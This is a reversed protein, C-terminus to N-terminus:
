DSRWRQPQREQFRAPDGLPILSRDASVEPLLARATHAERCLVHMPEFCIKRGIQWRECIARKQTGVRGAASSQMRDSSIGLRRTRASNTGQGPRRDKLPYRRSVLTTENSDGEFPSADGFNRVQSSSAPASPPRKRDATVTRSISRPMVSGSSRLPAVAFALSRLCHISPITEVYSSRIRGTSAATEAIEPLISASAMAAPCLGPM